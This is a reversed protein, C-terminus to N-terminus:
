EGPQTVVIMAQQGFSEKPAANREPNQESNLM